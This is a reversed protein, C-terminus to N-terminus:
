GDGQGSGSDPRSEAPDEPPAEDIRPEVDIIETAKPKEVVQRIVRALRRDLDPRDLDRLDAHISASEKRTTPRFADDFRQAFLKAANIDGQMAQLYVTSWMSGVVHRFAESLQTNIWANRVPDKLRSRVEKVELVPAPSGDEDEAEATFEAISEANLCGQTMALVIWVDKTDARFRALQTPTVSFGDRLVRRLVRSGQYRKGDRRAM